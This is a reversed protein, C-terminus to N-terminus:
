KFYNLIKNSTIVKINGTNVSNEKNLNLLLYSISTIVIISILVKNTNM